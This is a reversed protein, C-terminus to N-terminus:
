LLKQGSQSYQSLGVSVLSTLSLNLSHSLCSQSLSAFSKRRSCCFCFLTLDLFNKNLRNFSLLVSKVHANAAGEKPFHISNRIFSVM